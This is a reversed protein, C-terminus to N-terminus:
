SRWNFFKPKPNYRQFLHNADFSPAQTVYPKNATRNCHGEGTIPKYIENSRSQSLNATENFQAQGRQPIFATANANLFHPASTATTNRTAFTPCNKDIMKAPFFTKLLSQVSQVSVNPTQVSRFGVYPRLCFTAPCLPASILDCPCFPALVYSRLSM